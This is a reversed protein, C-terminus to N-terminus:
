AYERAVAAAPVAASLRHARVLIFVTLVTLTQPLMKLSDELLGGALGSFGEQSVLSVPYWLWAEALPKMGDPFANLIYAAIALDLVAFALVANVAWHRRRLAGILLMGALWTLVAVSTGDWREGILSNPGPWYDQNTWVQWPTSGSGPISALTLLGAALAVPVVAAPKVPSPGTGDRRALFVAAPFVILAPVIFTAAIFPLGDTGLSGAGPSGTGLGAIDFAIAALPIGMMWVGPVAFPLAVLWLLRLAGKALASLTVTGAHESAATLAVNVLDRGPTPSRRLLGAIEEGYRDRVRRPYLALVLRIAWSRLM